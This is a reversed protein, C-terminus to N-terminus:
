ALHEAHLRLAVALLHDLRVHRHRLDQAVRGIQARHGAPAAVEGELERVVLLDRRVDGLLEDLVRLGGPGLAMASSCSPSSATASSTREISAPESVILTGTSSISSGASVAGGGGRLRWACIRVMVM